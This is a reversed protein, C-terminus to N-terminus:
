NDFRVPYFSINDASYYAPKLFVAQPNGRQLLELKCFLNCLTKIYDVPFPREVVTQGIKHGFSRDNYKNKLTFVSNCLVPFNHTRGIRCICFRPGDPFVKRFINFSVNDVARIRWFGRSKLDRVEERSELYYLQPECLVPYNKKALSYDATGARIDISFLLQTGTIYTPEANSAWQLYGLREVASFCGQVAQIATAM